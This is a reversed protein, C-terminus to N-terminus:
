PTSIGYFVLRGVILLQIVKQLIKHNYIYIYIQNTLLYNITSQYAFLTNNIQLRITYQQNTLSYNITSKYASLKYTVRKLRTIAWKNACRQITKLIAM